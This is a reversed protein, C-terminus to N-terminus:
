FTPCKAKWSQLFNEPIQRGSIHACTFCCSGALSFDDGGLVELIMGLVQICHCIVMQSRLDSIRPNPKNHSRRGFLRLGHRKKIPHDIFWTDLMRPHDELSIWAEQGQDPPKLYPNDHNYGSPGSSARASFVPSVRPSCPLETKGLHSKAVCFALM